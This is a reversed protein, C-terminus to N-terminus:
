PRGSRLPTIAIADRLLQQFRQFSPAQAWTQSVMESQELVRVLSSRRAHPSHRLIEATEALMAAWQLSAESEAFSGAASSRSVKKTLPPAMKPRGAERYSVQVTALNERDVRGSGKAPAAPERLQLEFLATAAQGAYLVTAKDPSRLDLGLLKSSSPEHGVLRYGAVLEPNFTVKLAIDEAVRQPLQSHVQKIAARVEALGQATILQLYKAEVLEAPLAAAGQSWQSSQLHIASLGIGEAAAQRLGGDLQQIARQDLESLGDTILCLRTQRKAAKDRALSSAALLYGHRLGAELNTAHEPRLSDVARRLDRAHASGADEIVVRALDSYAVISVRDNPGLGDVLEQLGEQVTALRGGWTMSNSVDVALVLHVAPRKSNPLERAQVGLQMLHLNGERFPSPGVAVTLGLPAKPAPFGYNGAALFEEKRVAQAPPLEGDALYRRTLEYSDTGLCLPVRSSRLQPDTTEFLWIVPWEDHQLFYRWDFGRLHPASAGQSTSTPLIQIEPLEDVGARVSDGFVWARPVAVRSWHDALSAWNAALLGSEPIAAPAPQQGIEEWQPQPPYEQAVSVPDEGQLGFHIVDLQEVHPGTQLALLHPIQSGKGAEETRYASGVLSSMAGLYCLGVAVLIMAAQVWGARLLPVPSKGPGGRALRQLRDIFGHPLPVAALDHDLEPSISRTLASAFPLRQPDEHGRDTFRGAPAQEPAGSAEHCLNRMRAMFGTPMPVDRLQEDLASSEEPASPLSLSLDTREGLSSASLDHEVARSLPSDEDEQAPIQRLRELMGAPVYVNRLAADIKESPIKRQRAM